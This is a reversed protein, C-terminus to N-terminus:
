NNKNELNYLIKKLGRTIRQIKKFGIYFIIFANGMVFITVIIFLRYTNEDSLDIQKTILIIFIGIFYTFAIIVSSTTLQLYKQMDLDM